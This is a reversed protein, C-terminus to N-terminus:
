GTAKRHHAAPAQTTAPAPIAEEADLTRAIEQARALCARVLKEADAVTGGLEKAIASDDHRERYRLFLTERCRPQLYELARRMLVAAYLKEASALSQPAVAPAKAVNRQPTDDRMAALDGRWVDLTGLRLLLDVGPEEPLDFALAVVDQSDFGGKSVFTIRGTAPAGPRPSPYTYRFASRFYSQYSQYSRYSLYSPRPGM